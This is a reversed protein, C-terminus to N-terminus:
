IHCCITSEPTSPVGPLLIPLCRATARRTWMNASAQIWSTEQDTEVTNKFGVHERDHPSRFVQDDGWTFDENVVYGDVIEGNPQQLRLFIMLAEKIEDPDNVECATEIFTNLDRAWVQSYGSGANFSGKLIERFYPISVHWQQIRSFADPLSQRSRGNKGASSCGSAIAAAVLAVAMYRGTKM